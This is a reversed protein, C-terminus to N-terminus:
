PLTRGGIVKFTSAREGVPIVFHQQNGDLTLGRPTLESHFEVISISDWGNKVAKGWYGRDGLPARTM